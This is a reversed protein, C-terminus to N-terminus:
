SFHLAASSFFPIMMFVTTSVSVMNWYTAPFVILKSEKSLVSAVIGSHSLGMGSGCITKYMIPNVQDLSQLNNEFDLARLQPLQWQGVIFQNDLLMFLVEGVLSSMPGIYVSMVDELLDTVNGSM